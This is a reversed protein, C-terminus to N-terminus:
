RDNHCCTAKEKLTPDRLEECSPFFSNLDVHMIVKGIWQSHGYTKEPLGLLKLTQNAKEPNSVVVVAFAIGEEGESNRGGGSGTDGESVKGKAKELWKEENDNIRLYLFDATVVPYSYRSGYDSWVVAAKHKNLLNYTLDQFWSPHNFELAASYGHYTCTGLIDDLWERGGNGLTLKAPPPSEVIV